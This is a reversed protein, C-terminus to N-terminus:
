QCEKSPASDHLLGHIAYRWGPVIGTVPHLEIRLHFVLEPRGPSTVMIERFELHGPQFSPTPPCTPPTATELLPPLLQFTLLSSQRLVSRCGTDAPHYIEPRNLSVTHSLIHYRPKCTWPHHCIMSSLFSLYLPLSASHRPSLSPPHRYAKDTTAKSTM